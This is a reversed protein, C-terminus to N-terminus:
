TKALRCVIPNMPQLAESGLTVDVLSVGIDFIATM